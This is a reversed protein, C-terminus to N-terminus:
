ACGVSSCIFLMGGGTQLCLVCILGDQVAGIMWLFSFMMSSIIRVM